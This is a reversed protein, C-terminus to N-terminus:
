LDKPWTLCRTLCVEYHCNQSLTYTGDVDVLYNPFPNNPDFRSDDSGSRKRNWLCILIFIIVSVLFLFSVSALSIVLYIFLSDTQVEEKSAAPFQTYPEFFGDVLFVNLTASTSLPAAWQGESAGPAEAQHHRQLTFLDSDTAKLLQYSLSNQGWDRDDAVMKIVLYGSEATQPILDNCPATCSLLIVNEDQVVVYSSLSPSGGDVARVTFKDSNISICSFFPLDETEPPPSYTVKANVGSNRKSASGNGNHLAPSNNEQLYLKKSERSYFVDSILVMLNYESKLRRYGFGDSYYHHQAQGQIIDLAGQRFRGSLYYLNQVNGAREDKQNQIHFHFNHSITYNQLNNSGVVLDKANGLIFVTRPSTNYFIKLVMETNLFVSSLDNVEEVRLEARVIQFSNELLVQFLLVCPEAPGCLEERDLKKRLLLNGTKPHLRHDTDISYVGLFSMM